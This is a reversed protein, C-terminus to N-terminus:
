LCPGGIQHLAPGVVVDCLFALLHGEVKLVLLLTGGELDLKGGLGKDVWQVVKFVIVTHLALSALGVCIAKQFCVCHRGQVM